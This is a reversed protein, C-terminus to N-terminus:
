FTLGQEKAEKAMRFFNIPDCFVFNAEPRLEKMRRMIRDHDTPSVLITRFIHFRKEPPYTDMFHFATMVAKDVDIREAGIDCTHQIFVAGDVVQMERPFHNGGAGMPAFRALDAMNKRDTLNWGDIVFGIIQQDFKDFYYKNHAVNAEARSPLGSHKRPEYLLAPNNYGAGSDGAEFYDNDTYRDYVFDFAMPIRESLNTNFCWMLPNRGLAPDNYWKPIHRATWAGADYDGVYFLVYTNKPDFVMKEKPKRNVYRAKLPYQTYVSANALGCYGFADADKVCNYCSIVETFMWESEVGEHKGRNKHTTYKLQWPNFGCVQTMTKGGTRDYQRQLIEKMTALDTGLPQDPDDCPKEDGWCSVDFVFAKKMIAYDHNPVFANGLDPYYPKEDSWSIGDLTYFLLKDTTRDFYNELAWLYADCKASGSSPRTSGPLTGKGTFLGRLDLAPAAGTRERIRAEIEGGGRVPIPGEVGCVTTAVNMTAPVSEDWLCLGQKRIFDKYLDLFEDYSRIPRYEMGHMFHGPESMYRLWFTDHDAWFLFLEPFDRNRLGQVAVVSKLADYRQVTDEGFEKLFPEVEITYLVSKPLPM